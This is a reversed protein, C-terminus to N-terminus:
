LIPAYKGLLNYQYVKKYLWEKRLSNLKENDKRKKQSLIKHLSLQDWITQTASASMADGHM